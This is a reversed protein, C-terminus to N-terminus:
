SEKEELPKDVHCVKCIIKLPTHNFNGKGFDPAAIWQHERCPINLSNVFEKLDQMQEVSTEYNAYWNGNNIEITIRGNNAREIFVGQGLEISSQKGM